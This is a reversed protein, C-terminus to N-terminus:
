LASSPAQGACAGRDELGEGAAHDAGEGERAGGAVDMRQHRGEGPVDPPLDLRGQEILRPLPAPPEDLRVQGDVGRAAGGEDDVGARHQGVARAQGVDAGVQVGHEPAVEALVGVVTRPPHPHRQGVPEVLREDLRDAVAVPGREAEAQQGVAFWGARCRDSRGPIGQVVVRLDGPTELGRERVALDDRDDPRAPRPLQVGRPRHQAPPAEGVGEDDFGVEVGLPEGRRPRGGRAAAPEDQPADVFM